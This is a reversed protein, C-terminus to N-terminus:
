GVRHIQMCLKAGRAAQDLRLARGWNKYVQGLYNLPFKLTMIKGPYTKYTYTKSQYAKYTYTM